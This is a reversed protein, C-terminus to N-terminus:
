PEIILERIGLIDLIDLIEQSFGVLALDCEGSLLQQKATVLGRVGTSDIFTVGSMDVVLKDVGHGAQHLTELFHSVTAMDLSGSYSLQKEHM